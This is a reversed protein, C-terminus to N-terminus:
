RKLDGSTTMHENGNLLDLHINKFASTEDDIFGNEFTIDDVIQFDYVHSYYATTYIGAGHSSFTVLYNSNGLQAGYFTKIMAVLMDGYALEQTSEAAVEDHTKFFVVISFGTIIKIRRTDQRSPTAVADGRTHRDKEATGDQM